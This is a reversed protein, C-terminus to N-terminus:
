FRAVIALELSTEDEGLINDDASFKSYEIQAGITPTVFYNMNALLTAGKLSKDDGNNLDFGAGASLERTLYIDASLTYATNTDDPAGFVGDAEMRGIGLEINIDKGQIDLLNKYNVSLLDNDISSISGTSYSLSVSSRESLYLGATLETDEIESGGDFETDFVNIILYFDSDPLQKRIGFEFGDGDVGVFGPASAELDVYSLNVYSSRSLFAAEALPGKDTSVPEFYYTAGITTFTIEFKSVDGELNFYNLETEWQYDQAVAIGTVVSNIALIATAILHKNNM